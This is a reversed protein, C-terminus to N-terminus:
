LCLESCGQPPQAQSKCPPRNSTPLLHCLASSSLQRPAPSPCVCSPSPLSSSLTQCHKQKVSSLFLLLPDLLSAPGQTTRIGPPATGPAGQLPCVCPTHCGKHQTLVRACGRSHALLPRPLARQPMSQYRSMCIVQFHGGPHSLQDGCRKQSCEKHAWTLVRAIEAPAQWCPGQCLGPAADGHSFGHWSFSQLLLAKEQGSCLVLTALM